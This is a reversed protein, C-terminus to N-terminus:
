PTARLMERLTKVLERDCATRVQVYTEDELRLVWQVPHASVEHHCQCMEANEIAEVEIM